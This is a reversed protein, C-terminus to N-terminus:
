AQKQWNLIYLHCLGNYNQNHQWNKAMFNLKFETSAQQKKAIKTVFCLGCAKWM